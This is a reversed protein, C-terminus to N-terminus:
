VNFSSGCACAKKQNPNTLQFGSGTLAETYDLTSGIVFLYSAKTIMVTAGNKEFIKDGEEKGIKIEVLDMVYSLGSCGDKVVQIRLGVKKPSKGDNEIFTKIKEEAIASIEIGKIPESAKEAKKKKSPKSPVFVKKVNGCDSM